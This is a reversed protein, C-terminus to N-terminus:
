VGYRGRLADFNQRVENQTLVRNYIQLQGVRAGYYSTYAQIGQCLKDITYTAPTFAGATVFSSTTSNYHYMFPVSSPNTGFAIYNWGTTINSTNVSPGGVALNDKMSFVGSSTGFTGIELPFNYYFYNWQSQAQTPLQFIWMGITFGATTSITPRSNEIFTIFDKVGDFALIGANDSIYSPNAVTTANFQNTSLDYITNSTKATFPSMTNSKEIQWGDWWITAGNFTDAGDLRTQMIQSSANIMTHTFSFRQWETTITFTNAPAEVFGSGPFTAGFIFIQGTTTRDARAWVSVTWTEGIRTPAINFVPNAYSGIHADNGITVMKMPIGGVPSTFSTERSVVCSNSGPSLSHFAFIDLPNPHLNYTRDRTSKSLTPDVHYQLGDTVIRSNYNVGM